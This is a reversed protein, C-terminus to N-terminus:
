LACAWFMEPFFTCKSYKDYQEVTLLEKLKADITNHIREAELQQREKESNAKVLAPYPTRYVSIIADRLEKRQKRNLKFSIWYSTTLFDAHEEISHREKGYPYMDPTHYPVNAPMKQAYLAIDVSSLLLLTILMNRM